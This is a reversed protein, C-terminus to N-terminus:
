LRDTMFSSFLLGIIKTKRKYPEIVYQQPGIFSYLSMFGMKRETQIALKLVVM